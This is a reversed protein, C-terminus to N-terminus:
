FHLIQKSPDPCCFANGSTTLTCVFKNPCSDAKQIDCIRPIESNEMLPNGQPCLKQSLQENDDNHIRPHRHIRSNFPLRPQIMFNNSIPNFEPCTQRCAALSVFNNANGGFGSYIFQECTRTFQNFYYRMLSSSGRGIAVTLTCPNM